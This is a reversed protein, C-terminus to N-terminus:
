DTLKQNRALRRVKALPIELLEVIEKLSKGEAHWRNVLQRQADEVGEQHSEQWVRSKRIDELKFM